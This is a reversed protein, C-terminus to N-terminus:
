RVVQAMDVIGRDRGHEFLLAASLVQLRALFDDEVHLAISRLLLIIHVQARDHDGTRPLGIHFVKGGIEGKVVATPSGSQPEIALTAELLRESGRGEPSPPPRPLPSM